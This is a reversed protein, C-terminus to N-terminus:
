YIKVPKYISHVWTVNFYFHNFIWKDEIFYFKEFLEDNSYRLDNDVPVITGFRFGTDFMLRLNGLAPAIGFGIFPRIDFRKRYDTLNVTEVINDGGGTFGRTLSNGSNILYLAEVGSRAFMDINRLRINYRMSVPLGIYFDTYTGNLHTFDFLQSFYGVRSYHLSLGISGDIKDFIRDTLNVGANFGFNSSYQPVNHNLDSVGFNELIFPMSYNAGLYPEIKMVPDTQYTHYLNVFEKPDVDTISYEPFERLFEYMTEDANIIKDSFLYTQILLKYANIKEERTFGSVICSNIMEPIVELLGEDYRREAQRLQETCNIQPYAATAALIALTSILLSKRM